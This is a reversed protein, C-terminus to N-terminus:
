DQYTNHKNNKNDSKYATFYGVGYRTPWFIYGYLWWLRWLPYFPVFRYLGLLRAQLGKFLAISIRVTFFRGYAAVEKDKNTNETNYEGTQYGRKYQRM